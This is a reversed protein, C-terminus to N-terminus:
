TYMYIDIYIYSYMCMYVYIICVHKNISCVYIGIIIIADTKSVANEHFVNVYCKTWARGWANCTAVLVVVHAQRKCISITTDCGAFVGGFIIICVEFCCANASVLGVCFDWSDHHLSAQRVFAQWAKYLADENCLNLVSAAGIRTRLQECYLRSGVICTHACVRLVSRVCFDWSKHHLMTKRMGLGLGRAAHTWRNRRIDESTVACTAVLECIALKAINWGM